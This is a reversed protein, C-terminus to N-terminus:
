LYCLKRPSARDVVCQVSLVRGKGKKSERTVVLSSEDFMSSSRATKCLCTLTKAIQSLIVLSTHVAHLSLDNAPTRPGTNVASQSKDAWTNETPSARVCEGSRGKGPTIVISKIGPAETMDASRERVVLMAPRNTKDTHRLMNAIMTTPHTALTIPGVKPNARGNSERGSSNIQDARVASM